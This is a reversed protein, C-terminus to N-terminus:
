TQNKKLNFLYLRYKKESKKFHHFKRKQEKDYKAQSEGQASSTWCGTM